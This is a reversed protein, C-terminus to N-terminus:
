ENHDKERLQSAVKLAYKEMKWSTAIYIKKMDFNRRGIRLGPTNKLLSNTARGM